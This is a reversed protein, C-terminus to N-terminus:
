GLPWIVRRSTDAVKASKPSIRLTPPIGALRSGNSYKDNDNDPGYKQGYGKTMTTVVAMTTTSAVPLPITTDISAAATSAIARCTTAIRTAATSVIIQICIAITPSVTTTNTNTVINTTISTTRTHWM